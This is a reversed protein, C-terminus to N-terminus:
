QQPVTQPIANEPKRFLINKEIDKKKVTAASRVIHREFNLVEWFFSVSISQAVPLVIPMLYYINCEM